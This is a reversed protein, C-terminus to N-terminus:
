QEDEGSEQIQKIVDDVDMSINYFPVAEANSLVEPLVRNMQFDLYDNFDEPDIVDLMTMIIYGLATVTDTSRTTSVVSQGSHDYCENVCQMVWRIGSVQSDPELESLSVLLNKLIHAYQTGDIIGDPISEDFSALMEPDDDDFM